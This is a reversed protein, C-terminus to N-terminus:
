EATPRRFAFEIYPRSMDVIGKWAFHALHWNWRIQEVRLKRVVFQFAVQYRSVLLVPLHRDAMRLVTELVDVVGCSCYSAPFQAEQETPVQRRIIRGNRGVEYVVVDVTVLGIGM